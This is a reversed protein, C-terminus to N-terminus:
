AAQSADNINTKKCAYMGQMRDLDHLKRGAKGNQPVKRGM